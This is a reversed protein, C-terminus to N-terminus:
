KSVQERFVVNATSENGRTRLNGRATVGHDGEDKGM